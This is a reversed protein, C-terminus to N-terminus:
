KLVSNELDEAKKDDLELDFSYEVGCIFDKVKKKNFYLIRQTEEYKGEKVYTALNAAIFRKYNDLMNLKKIYIEIEEIGEEILKHTLYGYQFYNYCDQACGAARALEFEDFFNSAMDALFFGMSIIASHSRLNIGVFKSGGFEIVEIDKLFLAVASAFGQYTKESCEMLNLPNKKLCKKAEEIFKSPTYIEQKSKDPMTTWGERISLEISNYLDSNEALLKDIKEKTEIQTQKWMTELNKLRTWEEINVDIMKQTQLVDPNPAEARASNLPSKVIPQSSTSSSGALKDGYVQSSGHVDRSSGTGSKDQERYNGSTGKDRQFEGGAGKQCRGNGVQQRGDSRGDRRQM